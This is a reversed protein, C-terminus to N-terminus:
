LPRWPDRDHECGGGLPTDSCLSAPAPSIVGDNWWAGGIRRYITVIGFYVLDEPLPYECGDSM